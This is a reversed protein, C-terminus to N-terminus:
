NRRQQPQCPVEVKLPSSCLNLPSNDPIHFEGLQQRLDSTTGPIFVVRPGQGCIDYYLTLNGLVIFAMNAKRIHSCYDFPAKIAVKDKM